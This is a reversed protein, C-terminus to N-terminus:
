GAAGEAREATRELWNRMRDTHSGAWYVRDCGPCERVGQEILASDERLDPPLLDPARHGPITQLSANCVMCRSFLRDRWGHHFINLCRDVELLQLLPKQTQLVECWAPDGRERCLPRDRTLLTRGDDRALRALEDDDLAPDYLVDHGLARLWRALRGLMADAIM